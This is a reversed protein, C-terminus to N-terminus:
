LDTSGHTTEESVGALVPSAHKRQHMRLSQSPRKSDAPTQFDCEDCCLRLLAVHTLTPAPAAAPTSPTEHQNPRREWTVGSDQAYSNLEIRSYQHTQLLHTRLHATAVYPAHNCELCQYEPIDLGALQPFDMPTGDDNAYPAQRHWGYAIVQDVPMVPAGGKQFFVRYNEDSSGFMVGNADKVETNGRQGYIFSGYQDLPVWGVRVFKARDNPTSPKCYIWGPQSPHTDRRAYYMWPDSGRTAVEDLPTPNLKPIGRATDEVLTPKWQTM